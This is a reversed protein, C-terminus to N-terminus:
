AEDWYRGLTDGGGGSDYGDIPVNDGDTTGSFWDAFNISGSKEVREYNGEAHLTYSDDETIEIDSLHRNNDVQVPLGANQLMGVGNRQPESTSGAATVTEAHFKAPYYPPDLAIYSCLFL